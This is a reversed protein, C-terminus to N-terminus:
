GVVVAVSQHSRVPREASTMAVAGAAFRRSACMGRGAKRSFISMVWRPRLPGAM